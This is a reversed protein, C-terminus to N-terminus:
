GLEIEVLHVQGPALEQLFKKPLVVFRGDTETKIKERNVLLNKIVYQGYDLAQRNKYIIELEKGAFVTRFVAEGASTFEEKVLKPELKLKGLVGRIGFVQRRLTLLLWSAAGTLYHYMGRGKVNFYEPIGPYIRSVPFDVALRYLTDLVKYGERVFGKEYLAYAYMVVMHSFVAGNEKHGFAFGFCRGLNLRLERFDTNLRYGDLVPDYLYKNVAAILACAREGAAAGGMLTFVQGALTMRTGTPYEGEVRQGDNDYYGNFWQRGSSDTVWETAKIDEIIWKGKRILDGALDILRIRIKEGSIKRRCMALYGALLEQKERASDYNIRGTISDLLVGIERALEVEKKGAQEQLASLLRGLELLNWGYFATFAVSKGIEGAMDLADNWDGGELKIKNHPGVNFFATLNQVLLHELVSGYYIEGNKQRLKNSDEPRRNQDKERGRKIRADKFYVQPALLFEIDGTEELYLRTTFFPWAGHDMWVRSINNRDAIFEGPKSGIITANSGDFRVGAFNNLLLERVDSPEMVLLALCDQWLDRWGRGGRGYDHHPLFSCGYIRRLVPQLTVWKIWCSYEHNRFRVQLTSLKKRWFNKNEQLFHTFVEGSFYKAAPAAAPGQEDIVLVLIYSRSEGPALTVGRFRLAGVAEYGALSEGAKHFDDRNKVVAEPRHFAGGEGLYEEVLPFFGVPPIGESEAGFVGYAVKNVKHGREDFLLAPKVEIGFSTTSIRHLLSTVHRHDRLNDASRCFLPVAATPIIHIKEARLNTIKVQMLEVKDDNAPVLNTVEARIKVRRNERTVKHWLFGATLKVKEARDDQLNEAEQRPSLGAASWPGTGDIYLWFDRGTRSNHLDEASVPVTLFSNQGTKIDGHLFPSISAMLGAENALPFYLYSTKHPNELVFEGEEGRFYWKDPKMLKM